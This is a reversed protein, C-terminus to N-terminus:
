FGNKEGKSNIKIKILIVIYITNSPLAVTLFIFRAEYLKNIRIYKGQGEPYDAWYLGLGAVL